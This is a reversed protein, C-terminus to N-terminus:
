TKGYHRMVLFGIGAAFSVIIALILFLNPNVGTATTEAFERSQKAEGEAQNTIVSAEETKLGAPAPFSAEKNLKRHQVDTEISVGGSWKLAEKGNPYRIVLTLGDSGLLSTSFNSFAVEAQPGIKTEAPIIFRKGSSDELIWGGIDVMTQGNNIFLIHGGEGSIVSKIALQNPTALVTMYDSASYQGSSVHLGVTYAGPLMFIHSVSRGEQTKGDGFNWWFRANELPKGDLGVAEGVFYVASGVTVTKDEGARAEISAPASQPQGSVGGAPSRGAEDVAGSVVIKQVAIWSKGSVKGTGVVKLTHTGSTSDRYYFSRKQWNSNWTKSVAERSANLFEGGASTSYFELYVTENPAAPNGAADQMALNIEDSVEGPAITQPYSTFILGAVHQTSLAAAPLLLALFAIIIARPMPGFYCIIAQVTLGAGKTFRM